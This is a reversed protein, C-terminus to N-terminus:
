REKQLMFVDCESIKYIHLDLMCCMCYMNNFMTHFSTKM